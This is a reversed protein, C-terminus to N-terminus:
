RLFGRVTEKVIKLNMASVPEDFGNFPANTADKRTLIGYWLLAAACRGAGLTLHFGDRHVKELGNQLLADMLEGSPIVGDAKILDAAKEYASKLDCYMKKASSYNHEKLIDSGEEYAWTQHIYLKANPAYKRVYDALYSLYPEYSEFNYSFGSAQQL